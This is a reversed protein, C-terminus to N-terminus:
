VLLMSFEIAYEYIIYIITYFLYFGIIELTKLFMCVFVLFTYAFKFWMKPLALLFLFKVIPVVFIFFLFVCKLVTTTIRIRCIIVFYLPKQQLKSSYKMCKNIEVLIAHEDKVLFSIAYLVIIGNLSM